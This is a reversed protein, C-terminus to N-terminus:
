RESPLKRLRDLVIALCDHANELSDCAEDWSDRVEELDDEKMLFRPPEFGEAREELESELSDLTDIIEDLRKELDPYM